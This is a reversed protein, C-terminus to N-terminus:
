SHRVCWKPKKEEVMELCCLWRYDQMALSPVNLVCHGWVLMQCLIHVLRIRLCTYLTVHVTTENWSKCRIYCTHWDWEWVLMRCIYANTLVYLICWYVYFFKFFFILLFDNLQQVRDESFSGRKEDTSMCVEKRNQVM